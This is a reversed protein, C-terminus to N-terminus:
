LMNSASDHDNLLPLIREEDSDSDVYEFESFEKTYELVTSINKFNLLIIKNFCTDYKCCIVLVTM